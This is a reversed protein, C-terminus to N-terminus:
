LNYRVIFMVIRPLVRFQSTSNFNENFSDNNIFDVDLLNTAQLQYEWKSDEQRYFLSADLFTYTNEITNDTNSYNYYSWETEFTFDELFVADFNVFPQHTIFTSQVGANDYDNITARYGLEINPWERFSTRLSTNYSQTWSVSERIQANVINNFKSWSVNGGFAIRFKKINKSFRGFASVTEDAFNSMLNIPTSVQSIGQILTNTKIADTTRSYNISGSVNTYNFMNFSFYNVSYSHAFANELERNGRFLRNYNNFVFGEAFNNVDTYQAQIAYNLRINESKKLEIIANFDPLVLWQNESSTSGLQESKVNYNHLTAGPTFTFIGTKFKYHVGLFLDSFNFQVDNNFEDDQFNTQPGAAALRQFIGSNFRQESLTTGLTINVNSKNNIVYYYDIKADVKNTKVRQNQGVNYRGTEQQLPDFTDADSNTPDLPNIQTFIGRFPISDQILRYFPDEDQYLHQMQGAFINNEDLTYYANINQNISFPTNDKQEEINNANNDVTSVLSSNEQQNSAKLLVDYDLQFNVNPKYVSSLKLMGLRTRQDDVSNAIETQETAIYNRITNTVFSTRNDSLISFGSVDLKQSAAWSFNAALFQTEVSSVRNNQAVAFGLDSNSVNFSTGGGRNFNRFGGTFNFYDRFTFPVEGIDNFDTIINISYDPSYYFLKPKLLYREKEDSDFGLGGTVEGFWFNKKGDKLKINIAINDQDNGLGRMQGVENYNRLVEVKSVADAPINQTALKSDGDFFDKGEVMVKSVTKGEIQIEGDDNVEVGPLQKMVDELKRENGTTFSDANYVITDGRVTVPMEYVLEVADLESALPNLTIIREFDDSDEPVTLDFESPQLGLFSAKLTYTNGTPLDLQYRGEFNTIAYSEIEGTAKITAIINALELPDGVSDKIQGRLKISQGQVNLFFLSLVLTIFINKKM